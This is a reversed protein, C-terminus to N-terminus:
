CWRWIVTTDCGCRVIASARWQGIKAAVYWSVVLAASTSFRILRDDDFNSLIKSQM